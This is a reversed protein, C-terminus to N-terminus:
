IKFDNHLKLQEKAGFLSRQGYLNNEKSKAYVQKVIKVANKNRSAFLLYYITDSKHSYPMNFAIVELKNKSDVNKNNSKIINEVYYKLIEIENEDIIDLCEEGFFDTLNTITKIEKLTIDEAKKEMCKRTLGAIRIVGENMYNFLIDKAGDKNVISFISEKKIPKIGYPDIFFLVPKNNVKKVIDCIVKNFDALIIKYNICDSYPSLTDKLNKVCKKNEEIFICKIRFYDKNKGKSLNFLEQFKKAAKVAILPSGDIIKESDKYYGQGAFCDIIFIEKAWHQNKFIACWSDLYKKYIELKLKTHPRDTLDWPDKKPM